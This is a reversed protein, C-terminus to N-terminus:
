STKSEDSENPGLRKPHNDGEQLENFAKQFTNMLEMYDTTGKLKLELMRNKLSENRAKKIFRYFEFELMDGDEDKVYIKGNADVGEFTFFAKAYGGGAPAYKHFEPWSIKSNGMASLINWCYLNDGERWHLIDPYWIHPAVGKKKNKFLGM